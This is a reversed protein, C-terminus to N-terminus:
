RGKEKSELKEIFVPGTGIPVRLYGEHGDVIAYGPEDERRVAFTVRAASVKDSPETRFSLFKKDSTSDKWAVYVADSNMRQVRYVYVGDKEIIPTINNWDAGSLKEVMRQYSYFAMKRRGDRTVLGTRDFFGNENKFGEELGFAWFIRRIGWRMGFVYYKIVAGAQQAETQANFTRANFPSVRDPSGSFTGVETAWIETDSSFGSDALAERVHAVIPKLGLYDQHADGFYHIDFIDFGDGNLEQLIPLYFRDFDALYKREPSFGSVGGILVRAEPDAQKIAKTTLRLLKAYGSPDKAPAPENGVQWVKIPAVLDPMDDRGDGDYREVCRGVFDTYLDSDIPAFSRPMTHSGRIRASPHAPSINMVMQVDPPLAKVIADTDDWTYRSQSIPNQVVSWFIYHSDRTWHVKLERAFSYPDASRARLPHFGFPSEKSEVTSDQSIPSPMVTDTAHIRRRDDARDVESARIPTGIPFPAAVPPSPSTQQASTGSRWAQRQRDRLNPERLRPPISTSLGGRAGGAALDRQIPAANTEFPNPVNACTAPLRDDGVVTNIQEELLGIVIDLQCLGRDMMGRGLSRQALKEVRGVEEMNVSRVGTRMGAQLEEIRRVRKAVPGNASDHRASWTPAPVAHVGEIRASPFLGQRLSYPPTPTAEGAPGGWEQVSSPSCAMLM